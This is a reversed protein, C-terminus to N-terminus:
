FIILYITLNGYNDGTAILGCERSYTLSTIMSCSNHTLNSKNVKINSNLSNIDNTNAYNDIILPVFNDIDNQIIEKGNNNCNNNINM